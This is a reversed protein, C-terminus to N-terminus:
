QAAPCPDRPPRGAHASLGGTERVEELGQVGLLLRRNQVMARGEQDQGPRAAALGPDDGGLNGMQDGTLAVLWGRNQRDGERVLGGLLHPGPHPPQHRRRSLHGDPGEVAEPGPHQATMSQRDAYGPVERDVIVLIGQGEQLVQARVPKRM